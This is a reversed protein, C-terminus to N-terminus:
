DNDDLIYKKSLNVDDPKIYKSNIKEIFLPYKKLTAQHPTKGDLSERPVNNINDQLKQVIKENFNEFSSGSPFVKRIYEHNKECTGKQWSSCPECYFLNTIKNGTEYDLEMALPNFFESGNDTLIIRCVKSYVKISLNSKLNKFALNVSDINKKELLRIIVFNTERLTITLLVKSEDRKGIVTDVEVIPMKPHNAIFSLFDKYSRNKLLALERKNGKEYEKKRIKYTVKKPLDIDRLSLIGLNVYKYFTPKSFYLIDSHNIYVQNVSQNQNKILPVISHEIEDITESSVDIGQRSICLKSHYNKDAITANYYLKNKRCGGKSNCSNCTYPYKQLKPCYDCAEKIALKSYCDSSINSKAYRNRKIEKSITTRDKNIAKGIKSLTFRENLFYQITERQEKNLHNYTMIIKGGNMLSLYVM